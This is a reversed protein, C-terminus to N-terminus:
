QLEHRKGIVEKERECCINGRKGKGQKRVTLSIASFGKKSLFQMASVMFYVNYLFWLSKKVKKALIKLSKLLGLISKLSGIEGPQTAQRAPM